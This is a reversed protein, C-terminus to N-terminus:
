FLLIFFMVLFFVSYALKIVPLMRRSLHSARMVSKGGTVLVTLILLPLCMAALYLVLPLIGIRGMGGDGRAMYLLSALYVQGTCLFEGASIAIGLALLMPYWMRKSVGSLKQIARHDWGRLKKPLMMREKGYELRCLHIVDMLYFVALGLAVIALLVNLGWRARRFTDSELVTLLSGIGLGLGLYTMFKGALFTLSGRWVSRESVLIVSLVMLLMSIGCPNLGNLFGTGLIKWLSVDAHAEAAEMEALRQTWAEAGAQGSSLADMGDRIQAIGSLYVSPAFLIPVQQERDPVEYLHLLKQLLAAHDEEVISYQLIRVDSRETLAADLLVEAEECSECAATVFLLYVQQGDASSRIEDALARVSDQGVAAADSVDTGSEDTEYEGSVCYRAVAEAIVGYEGRFVIGDVVAVPLDSRSLTLGYARNVEELQERGYEKFANYAQCKASTIDQDTLVDTVITYFKSEEHCSECASFTFLDIEIEDTDPGTFAGCSGLFLGTLALLCLLIAGIICKKVVNIQM